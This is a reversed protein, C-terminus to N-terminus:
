GEAEEYVAVFEGVTAVAGRGSRFPDRGLEQELKTVLVALDLSDLGLTEMLRDDDKLEPVPAGKDALVERIANEVAERTTSQTSM